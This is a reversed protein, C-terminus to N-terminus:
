AVERGASLSVGRVSESFRPARSEIRAALAPQLLTANIRSPPPEAGGTEVLVVNVSHGSTITM